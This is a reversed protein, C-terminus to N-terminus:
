ILGPPLDLPASNEDRCWPLITCRGGPPITCCLYPGLAREVGPLRVACLGWPCIKIRALRPLETRTAVLLAHEQITLPYLLVHERRHPATAGQRTRVHFRGARIRLASRGPMRCASWRNAVACRVATCARSQLRTSARAQSPASGTSALKIQKSPLATGRASVLRFRRM